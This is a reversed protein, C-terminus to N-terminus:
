RTSKAAIHRLKNQQAEELGTTDPTWYACSYQREADLFLDYLTASLDYHHAVNARSARRRNIQRIRGGTARWARRLPTSPSIQRGKEWPNNGRVLGIFDMIDGGSLTVRGDMYAEAFGLRPDFVIDRAVRHDHLTLVLDPFDPDAAGFVRSKGDPDVLTVRGKRILRTLVKNLLWMM